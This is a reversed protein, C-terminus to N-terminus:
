RTVELAFKTLKNVDISGERDDGVRVIVVDESPVVIIRQGWHGLAAYTDGPVDPWPAPKNRSPVPRNLWWAYGSPTTESDPASNVFADSPTTSATVWGEPVIRQGNWCGDNLFLFGFKAFDRTTAFVMSGGLPTGKVDEEFATRPMGIPDFLLKWFADNGHKKALARKAVASALEADGTSYSWVKGPEGVLKRDIIHSLQDRHGGGFLMAIVSSVQYSQDEYEEQWDLATAFTIADKVTIACQATGAYEPLHTCISDSLSLLGERVGIGILSEAVNAAFESRDFPRLADGADRAALHCCNVFVLEPVTRMNEIERWGLFTGGSMVVGGAGGPEGHGAIHVIRYRRQLLANIIATADDQDVLRVVRSAAIGGPGTLQKVVAKAEALAGPLKGYKKLDVKPEGIVLVADDATADQVRERFDKLRLKRLLQCRVAWPRPDGSAAKDEGTDLLEWPIPATGRDLELMMHSTGSLFAELEPPVLLQFLTRGIQPDENTDTSARAVLERLLPGQTVQARVETRARRTDLRYSITSNTGNARATGAAVATGIAQLAGNPTTAGDKANADEPTTATILDYDAGRYGNDIQRRLPGTGATVTPAIDFRAGGPGGLLQLGRWADTARELYLEVLVLHSVCPWSATQLRENAERVGQAIARAACAVPWPASSLTTRASIFEVPRDLVFGARQEHRVVFRDAV